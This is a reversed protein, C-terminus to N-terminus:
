ELIRWMRECAGISGGHVRKTDIRGIRVLSECIRRTRKRTAENNNWDMFEIVDSTGFWSPNEQLHLFICLADDLAQFRRFRYNGNKSKFGKTNMEHTTGIHNNM